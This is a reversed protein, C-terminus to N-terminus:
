FPQTKQLIKEATTKLRKYIAAAEHDSLPFDNWILNKWTNNPSENVWIIEMIEEVLNKPEPATM